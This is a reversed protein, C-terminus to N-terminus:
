PRNNRGYYQNGGYEHQMEFNKLGLIRILLIILDYPM